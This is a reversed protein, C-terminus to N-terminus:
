NATFISDVDIEIGPPDLMLGGSYALSTLLKGTTQRSHLVIPRKDPTVLLYHMVSPKQFYGALKAGVDIHQTSPSLVEVVIVPNSVEVHHDPVRPGCYVLADPEYCTGQDIRVTMGDPLMRCPVGAKRIAEGLATQVAFKTEAHAVRQPSMAIVFGDHLEFRGPRGEAWVLFEDVTMRDQPLATTTM